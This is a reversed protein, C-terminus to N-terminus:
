AWASKLQVTRKNKMREINQKRESYSSKIKMQILIYCTIVHGQDLAMKAKPPCM